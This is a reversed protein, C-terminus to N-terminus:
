GASKRAHRTIRTIEGLAAIGIGLLHAPQVHDLASRARRSRLRVM